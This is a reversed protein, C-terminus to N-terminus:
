RKAKELVELYKQRNAPSLSDASASYIYKSLINRSVGYPATGGWFYRPELRKEIIEALSDLYPEPEREALANVFVSKFDPDDINAKLIKEAKAPSFSLLSLAAPTRVHVDKDHLLQDLLPLLESFQGFGVAYAVGIRVKASEDKSREALLRAAERGPFDSLLIVAAQRVLPEPDKVWRSVADFINAENARGLARIALARIGASGSGDAVSVLNKWYKRASANDVKADRKTVGHFTGGGVAALWHVQNYYDIHPSAAGVAKIAQSAVKEDKSFVFKRIQELVLHRDFDDLRLWGYPSSMEDLQRIAYVIDKSDSSVLLKNLESWIIEKVSAGEAVPHNDAALIVGQDEKSKHFKWLQRFVGDKDTKKAFIIYTRDVQFEYHQPMFGSGEAVKALGYHQFVVKQAPIRGKISSVVQMETAYADFGRYKRFWEHDIPRSSLVKAKIILDSEQVLQDLKLAPGVRYAYCVNGLAVFLILVIGLKCVKMM